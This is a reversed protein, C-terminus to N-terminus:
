HLTTTKGKSGKAKKVKENITATTTTTKKMEETSVSPFLACTKPQNHM